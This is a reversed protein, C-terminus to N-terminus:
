LGNNKPLYTKEEPLANGTLSLFALALFLAVFLKM